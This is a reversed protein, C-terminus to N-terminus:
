ILVISFNIFSINSIELKTHICFLFQVKAQVCDYYIKSTNIITFRIDNNTINTFILRNSEEHVSIEDQM